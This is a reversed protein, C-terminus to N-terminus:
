TYGMQCLFYNEWWCVISHLVNFHYIDWRFADAKRWLTLMHQRKERFHAKMFFNCITFHPSPVCGPGSKPSHLVQVRLKPNQVKTFSPSQMNSNLSNPKCDWTLHGPKECYLTLLILRTQTKCYVRSKELIMRWLFVGSQSTAFINRDSYFM